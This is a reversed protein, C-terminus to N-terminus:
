VLYCYKLPNEEYSAKDEVSKSRVINRMFTSYVRLLNSQTCVWVNM